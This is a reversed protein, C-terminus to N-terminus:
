HSPEPEPRTADDLLIRLTPFASGPKDALTDVLPLLDPRFFEALALCALARRPVFDAGIEYASEHNHARQTDFRVTSHVFEAHTKKGEAFPVLFDLCQAISAGRSTKWHYLDPAGARLYIMATRILPELDYAQYHLSDREQFDLTTGDQNLNGELFTKLSALTQDELGKDALLFAAMSIIKLRHAEWNNRHTGKSPNDGALLTQALSRVWDDADKRDAPNMHSRILDYSELLPELNTADIPNELPSCTQTWAKLFTMTKELYAERDTLTFALALNWMRPMDQLCDQTRKKAGSGQLQGATRIQEAPNPNLSLAEEANKEISKEWLRGEPSNEALTRFKLIEPGTLSVVGAQLRVTPLFMLPGLWPLLLRRRFCPKKM